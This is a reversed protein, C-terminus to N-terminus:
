AVKRRLIIRILRILRTIIFLLPKLLSYGITKGYVLTLLPFLLPLYFLLGDLINKDSIVTFIRDFHFRFYLLYLILANFLWAIIIPIAALGNFKDKLSNIVTIWQKELKTDSRILEMIDAGPHVTKSKPGIFVLIDGALNGKVELFVNDGEATSQIGGTLILEKYTSFIQLFNFKM